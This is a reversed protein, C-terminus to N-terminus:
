GGAGKDHFHFRNSLSGKLAGSTMDHGSSAEAESSLGPPSGTGTHKARSPQGTGTKNRDQGTQRAGSPEQYGRAEGPFNQPPTSPNRSSHGPQPVLGCGHFVVQWPRRLERCWWPRRLEKCRGHGESSGAGGHGGSSGAEGHGGNDTGSQLDWDQPGTQTQGSPGGSHGGGRGPPVTVAHSM